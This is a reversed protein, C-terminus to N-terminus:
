KTEDTEGEKMDRKSLSAVKIRVSGYSWVPIENSIEM